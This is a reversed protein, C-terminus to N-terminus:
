ALTLAFSVRKRASEEKKVFYDIMRDVEQEVYEEGFFGWCSDVEEGSADKLVYGYVAGRLYQDYMEVECHLGEEAKKEDGGWERKIAEESAVIWGVQGSDWPDRFAGVKMTIGGHDYLYLPLIVSDEGYEELLAYFMEEWGSYNESRYDHEDGLDYRKHFCIMTGVNDWSRPDEAMEDPYIEAVFGDREITEVADM